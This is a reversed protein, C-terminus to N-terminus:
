LANEPTESTINKVETHEGDICHCPVLPKDHLSCAESGCNKPTDSVGGCEGTCVYHTM